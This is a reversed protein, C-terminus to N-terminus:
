EAAASRAVFWHPHKELLDLIEQATYKEPVAPLPSWQGRWDNLSHVAECFLNKLGREAGSALLERALDLSLPAPQHTVRPPPPNLLNQHALVVQRMETTTLDRAARGENLFAIDLARTGCDGILENIAAVFLDRFADEPLAHAETISIRYMKGDFM